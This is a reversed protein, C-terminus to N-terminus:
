KQGLRKWFNSGFDEEELLNLSHWLITSLHNFTQIAPFSIMSISKKFNEMLVFNLEMVVMHIQKKHFLFNKLGKQTQWLQFGRFFTAIEWLDRTLIVLISLNMSFLFNEALLIKQANGCLKGGSKKWNQIM